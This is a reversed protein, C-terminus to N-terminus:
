ALVHLEVSDFIETVGAIPQSFDVFPPFLKALEGKFWLDFPDESAALRANGDWPDDGELYVGVIDGEPTATITVVEVNHGLARRSRTMDDRSFADAVFARGADAVGPLTPATFAMGRRRTTVEPDTWVGITEPLPAAPPQTLDIGHIERVSNVFFRDIALDSSVAAGVFEGFGLESEVYAVVFDGMPTKQQYARELTVGLRHRSEAYEDPRARFRDAISRVEADTKGQLVPFVLVTRQM